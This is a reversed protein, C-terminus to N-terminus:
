YNEMEIDKLSKGSAKDKWETLGNINYNVVFAAAYSPSTFLIDEKLEHTSLNIKNEYKERLKNINKRNTKPEKKPAVKSGKFVIFGENTRRGLANANPKILQFIPEKNIKTINSNNYSQNENIPIFVKHGLAGILIKSYGIFEELECKKEETINGPNPDNGNKVNYRNAKRALNFFRNELYSLETPGLCDNNTTIAIAETWYDKDPNAKHEKLRNLLGKNNKRQRAQGIYVKEKEFNESNSFLFYVGNQNLDPRDNCNDLETRPIKYMVGVWNKMTCKIRGNPEGDLLFLSLNKGKSLM